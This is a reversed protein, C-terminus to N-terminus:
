QLKVRLGSARQVQRAVAAAVMELTGVIRVQQQARTIATYLLERTLLPSESDPLIVSVSAYQSGQSRHITMAYATQVDALVSPEVVLPSGGREILAALVGDREIVVGIDGNFVKLDYDNATVLLPQGAYFDDFRRQGGSIWDRALAAWRERGAPGDRHACLV